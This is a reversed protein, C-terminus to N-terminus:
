TFEESNGDKIGDVELGGELLGEAKSQHGDVAGESAGTHALVYILSKKSM